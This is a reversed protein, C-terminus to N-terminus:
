SNRLLSVREFLLDCSTTESFFIVPNGNKVKTVVEITKKTANSNTPANRSTVVFLLVVVPLISLIHNLSIRESRKRIRDVYYVTSLFLRKKNEIVLYQFYVKTAATSERKM